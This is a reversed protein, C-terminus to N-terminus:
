CKTPTMISTVMSGQMNVIVQANILKSLEDKFSEIKSFDRTKYLLGPFSNDIQALANNAIPLSQFGISSCQLYRDEDKKM